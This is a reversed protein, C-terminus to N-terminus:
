TLGIVNLNSALPRAAAGRFNLAANSTAANPLEYQVGPALANRPSACDQLAAKPRFHLEFKSV